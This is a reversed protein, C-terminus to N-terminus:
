GLPYISMLIVRFREFNQWEIKSKQYLEMSLKYYEKLKKEKEEKTKEKKEENETDYIIWGIWEGFSQIAFGIVWAGGLIMVWMWSSFRELHEFIIEFNTTSTILSAIALLLILGPVIKGFFDRLIFRYYLADFLNALEGNM